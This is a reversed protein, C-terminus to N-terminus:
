VQAVSVYFCCLANWSVPHSWATVSLARLPFGIRSFFFYFITWFLWLFKVSFSFTFTSFYIADCVFHSQMHWLSASEERGYEWIKRGFLLRQVLLYSMLPKYGAKRLLSNTGELFLNFGFLFITNELHFKNGRSLFLLQSFTELKCDRQSFTFM